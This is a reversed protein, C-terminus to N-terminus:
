GAQTVLPRGEVYHGYVTTLLSIGVIWKVWNSVTLWIIVPWYGQILGLTVPLDIVFVGLAVLIALAFMTGTSGDTKQWAQGIGLEGGIAASPLVNSLRFLLAGIPVYIALSILAIRLQFGASGMTRPDLQSMDPLLLPFVVLMLILAVPVIILGVLLSFGFYSLMRDGRFAPLPSDNLESKLIYRHWAVAMWLSLIISVIMAVFGSLAMGGMTRIGLMMTPALILMVAVQLAYLLGTVRIVGGLNGFVQRVAHTLLDFAKM